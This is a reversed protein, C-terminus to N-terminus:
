VAFALSVTATSADTLFAGVTLDGGFPEPMSSLKSAPM